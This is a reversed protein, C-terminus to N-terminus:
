GVLFVGVVWELEFCYFPLVLPLGFTERDRQTQLRSSFIWWSSSSPGKNDYGTSRLKVQNRCSALVLGLSWQRDEVM